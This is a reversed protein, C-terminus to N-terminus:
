LNDSEGPGLLHMFRPARRDLRLTLLPVVTAETWHCSGAIRLAKAECTPCGFLTALVLAIGFAFGTLSKVIKTSRLDELVIPPPVRFCPSLSRVACFNPSDVARDRSGCAISLSFAPVTV